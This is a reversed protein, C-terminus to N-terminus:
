DDRSSVKIVAWSVRENWRKDFKMQSWHKLILDYMRGFLVYIRQFVAPRILDRSIRFSWDTVFCNISRANEPETNRQLMINQHALTEVGEGGGRSLKRNVVSRSYFSSGAHVINSGSPEMKFHFSSVSLWYIIQTEVFIVETRARNKVEFSLCYSVSIQHSISRLRIINVSGRESERPVLTWKISSLCQKIM